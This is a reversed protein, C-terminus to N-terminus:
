GNTVEVDIRDIKCDRIDQALEGDIVNYTVDNIKYTLKVNDYLNLRNKNHYVIKVKNFLLCTVENNEDFYEKSLKPHLAFHLRDNEYTFLNDGFFMITFMNLLEANAGTLRAFFGQGHLSSDPNNSPVIFTSNEFPSRGYVYPDLYCPFNNKIEQYFYEYYGAKLLGLVYKYSMHLFNCERELWGKTFAHIRGIEFPEDEIPASTKYFKMKNDYLGSQKILEYDKEEYFEKGLKLLRAPAELFPPLLHEKFKKVKVVEYGLHNVKNLKEYEEVKYVIYSPLIGKGLEKAKKIGKVLIIKVNELFKLAEKYTLSVQKGEVGEYIKDKFIERESTVKDWYTFSDLKDNLFLAVLNNVNKYFDYQEIFMKFENASTKDFWKLAFNVLRLLEVTESLASAFLGPLGNMADNWGPKECEMEIGLQKSDLTSFKITILSFIKNALSTKAIKNDKDKVWYTKKLDLNLRECEKKTKKLDLAGYQRVKNESVLCYKEDRPEVKIPAYFYKYVEENLLSDIYDPYISLYNELLDVNYTWHDIWYGEAFDAQVEQYSNNLIENFINDIDSKIFEENDKLLTYLSSPEYSSALNLVKEKLPSDIKLDLKKDLVFVTPKVNLPNQGDLQILNFFIKINYDKVFPYFYLDNRRNQNVDRFNGCGSSYYKSPIQFSNYDREMDGHKRSYLYYTEKNNLLTPFGGRLNNDLFSQKIYNDFLKDKTKITSPSLLDNILDRSDQKAKLLTQYNEEKLAKQFINENDFMGYVTIFSYEENPVFEKELITFACPLKNERQQEQDKLKFGDQIFGLPELLSKDKGFVVKLDVIVDLLKNNQDISFFGNGAHSEQVIANDSTSTKFKVFPTKDNLNSIECYAAMLSPLEKYCYNSLGNPFFIPLGDLVSIKKNENSKNKITVKRALCAYSKFPLTYYEVKYVFNKNEDKIAVDSKNIYMTQEKNIKSFPSYLNNEDKIFSRFSRTSINQYASNASDFPTIPTDKNNVGFGGMAQGVNAYFAWLPKGNRGAIAPLFSAFTKANQYDEIIFEDNKFTYKVM